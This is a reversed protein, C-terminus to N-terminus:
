QVLFSNFLVNTVQVPVVAIRVRRLVNERIRYFNASGTMEEPRLERLYASVYDTIRPQLAELRPVDSENLLVVTLGVKLFRSKKGKANLNLTIEELKYFVQGQIVIDEDVAEEELGLFSDLVGSFFVGLGIALLLFVAAGIILLLKLRKSKKPAKGEGEEGEEGEEDDDFDPEDGGEPDEDDDPEDDEDAM